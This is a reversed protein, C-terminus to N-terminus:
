GKFFHIYIPNAMFGLAVIWGFAKSLCLVKLDKGTKVLGLTQLSSWLAHSLHSGLIFLAFIYWATYGVSAFINTMLLHLDRIEEGKFQFPYYEGFRFTILHLVVFVLTVMGSLAMTRSAMSARGKKGSNPSVAYGTPRAKRNDMVVLAAFFIHGLFTALLGMEMPYYIEKNGTIAHGYANYAEPGLFYFLNGLMHTLVFVCWGLGTIAMMQKKGISSCFYNAVRNM